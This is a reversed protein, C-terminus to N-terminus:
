FKGMLKPIFLVQYKKNEDTYYTINQYNKREPKTFDVNKNYDM